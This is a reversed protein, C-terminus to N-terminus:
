GHVKGNEKTMVRTRKIRVAAEVPRAAQTLFGPSLYEGPEKLDLELPMAIDRLTLCTVHGLMLHVDEILQMSNAPVIVCTDVMSALKGGEFGTVGITSAGHEKATEIAQLVNPSNGSGSFAVLVDGKEVLTELQHSFVGEYSEDNAWATILPVNDTLAIIRMFPADDRRTLKALDNAFHSATAASGGNGVIFVTQKKMRAEALRTIMSVISPIPMTELLNNMRFFYNTVSNFQALHDVM